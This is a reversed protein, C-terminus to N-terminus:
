YLANSLNTAVEMGVHSLAASTFHIYNRKKEKEKYSPDNSFRSRRLAEQYPLRKGDSDMTVKTYCNEYDEEAPVYRDYFYSSGLIIDRNWKILDEQAQHVANLREMTGTGTTTATEVIVGWEIGLDRKLRRHLTKYMRKYARKTTKSSVDSEGQAFVYIKNGIHLNSSEALKIAANYKTKIAEYVYCKFRTNRKDDQPLFTQIPVGRKGACVAIVKHGTLAYYTQCFQPVMNTGSSSALSINSHDSDEFAILEGDKYVLNEGYSNKQTSDIERFSNTLYRYEYVTNKEQKVSVFNLTKGNNALIDREIGTASAYEDINLAGSFSYQNRNYRDEIEDRASGVMNSQGTFLIIDYIDEETKPKVLEMGNNSFPANASDNQRQLWPLLDINFEIIQTIIVLAIISISLSFLRIAEKKVVSRHTLKKM